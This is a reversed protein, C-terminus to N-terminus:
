EIMKLEDAINTEAFNGKVGFGANNVLVDFKRNSIAKILIDTSDSNALDAPFVETKIKFKHQCEESIQILTKENRATLFINFGNKAFEFVLAKGIGSSAGTIIAWKETESM